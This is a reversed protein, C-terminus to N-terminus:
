LGLLLQNGESVAKLRNGKLFIKFAQTLIEAWKQEVTLQPATSVINFISNSIRQFMSMATKKESGNVTIKIFRQRSTKVVKCISNFFLPRSTKAEM